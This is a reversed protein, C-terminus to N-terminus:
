SPLVATINPSAVIASGHSPTPVAIIVPVWLACTRYHTAHVRVHNTSDQPPNKNLRLQTTNFHTKNPQPNTM